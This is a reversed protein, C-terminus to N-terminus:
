SFLARARGFIGFDRLSRAAAAPRVDRVPEPPIRAADQVMMAALRDVVVASAFTSVTRADGSQVARVFHDIQASYEEGRLYYFPHDSLETTFSTTWGAKVPVSSVEPDRIYTQVEQRDVTMRGNAGWVSIRTSMKRHSDDSWNALIQASLGDKFHFTSYVEDEVDKSFLPNLVTGSVREPEGALFTVLDIAHCAYDYLCGGGESKKARWTVNKPRLVVPGYAEARINHIRGLAGADILRKAERFAAVFRFHYGVQNVVGKAEALAALRAGEVADLCFPKECFVHLGRDLAAQVLRGHSASPTAIVVGDLTEEALMKDYDSYVKLGTCKALTDLVYRTSDCAAVLEVDPHARVIALHSIGMKGLGVLALRVM